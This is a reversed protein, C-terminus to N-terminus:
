NRSKKRLIRLIEDMKKDMGNIRKELRDVEKKLEERNSKANDELNNRIIKEITIEEFSILNYPLWSLYRKVEFSKAKGNKTLEYHALCARVYDDSNDVPLKKNIVAELYEIKKVHVIQKCKVNEDDYDGEKIELWENGEKEGNMLQLYKNDKSYILTYIYIIYDWLNHVYQTHHKFDAL